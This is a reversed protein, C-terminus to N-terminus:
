KIQIDMPNTKSHSSAAAPSSSSSSTSASAHAGGDLPKTVVHTSAGTSPSHAALSVSSAPRSPPLDLPSLLAQAPEGADAAALAPAAPATASGTALERSPGGWRGRVVMVGVGLGVLLLVTGVAISATRARKSGGAHSEEWATATSAGPVNSAALAASARQTPASPLIETSAGAVFPLMSARAGASPAFPALARALEAVSQFRAAPNKELCRLVIRDLEPPLGARRASPLPTPTQLIAAVIEPLSDAVFPPSGVLLEYLVVGLSWVDTRADVSKASILQEPSMYYPSGMMASTKTLSADQPNGSTSKSIGFDLIKVIPPRGPREALFLNAPKLDRHVIGAAHAEALGDSAQLVADAVEGVPLPGRSALQQALDQGHLYEMVIYPAGGPLEGVDIVRVVHESNIKAAARAERAFRGVIEANKLAEPLLFKIAVHQDLQRHKAAVVVGMGGAGLVREIVYKGALVDGPQVPAAGPEAVTM